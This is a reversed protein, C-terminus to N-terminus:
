ESVPFQKLLFNLPLALSGIAMCILWQEITLGYNNYV